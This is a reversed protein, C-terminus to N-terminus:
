LKSSFLSLSLCNRSCTSLSPTLSDRVDGLGERAPFMDLSSEELALFSPEHISQRKHHRSKKQKILKMESLEVREYSTAVLCVAVIERDYTDFELPVQAQCAM